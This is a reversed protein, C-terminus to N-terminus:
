RSKGWSTVSTCKCSRVCVCLCGMCMCVGMGVCMFGSTYLWGWVKLPTSMDSVSSPSMKQILSKPHRPDLWQGCVFTYTVDTCSCTYAHTLTYSWQHSHFPQQKIICRNSCTLTSKRNPRAVFFSPHTANVRINNDRIHMGKGFSHVRHKLTRCTHIFPPSPPTSVRARRCLYIHIDAHMHTYVHVNVHTCAGACNHM